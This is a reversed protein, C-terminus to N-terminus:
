AEVAALTLKTTDEVKEQGQVIVLKGSKEYYGKLPETQDHYTKLRDRVTAPEDDKRIVTKGGCKDCVGEEKSPKYLTHYSAGCAECVRRGSLRQEIKEDAVQCFAISVGGRQEVGFNPIYLIEKGAEYGAEVLIKAISQVGQGGEGALVIRTRAM